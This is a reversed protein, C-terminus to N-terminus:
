IRDTPSLVSVIAPALAADCFQCCDHLSFTKTKVGTNIEFQARTRTIYMTTSGAVYRLNRSLLHVEVVIRLDIKVCLLMKPFGVSGM